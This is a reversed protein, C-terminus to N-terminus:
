SRILLWCIDRALANALMLTEATMVKLAEGKGAMARKAEEEAVVVFADVVGKAKLKAWLMWGRMGGLM